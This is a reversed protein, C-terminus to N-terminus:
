QNDRDYKYYKYNNKRWEIEEKSGCFELWEDYKNIVFWKKKSEVWRMQDGRYFPKYTKNGKEYAEALEKKTLIAEINNEINTSDSNRQRKEALKNARKLCVQKDKEPLSFYYTKLMETINNIDLNFYRKAPIGRLKVTILNHKKCIKIATDQEKRSLGTEAEVEKITKFIWEPNDGKGDWFLLQSLLLGANVSGLAHALDANFAIPRTGLINM